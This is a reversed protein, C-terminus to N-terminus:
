TGVPAAVAAAQQQWLRAAEQRAAAEATAAGPLPEDRYREANQRRSQGAADYMEERWAPLPAERCQEALWANYDWQVAGSQRHTYRQPTGAAALSAYFADIHGEMEQQSPLKATGALVRAIWRSQLEFQPFPVIKWPLGVFSLTPAVTPPFVHQYLRALHGDEVSVLGTPLFPVCYEYGTCYMVTHLPGVVSGDALTARGDGHLQALNAAKVVAGSSGAGGVTTDAIDLPQGTLPNEWTRACLYVQEAGAGALEEAIDVGSSSAGLLLVRQGKFADPSRYNHSHMVLGLFSDQGPIAPLRPRAYHGTCVVVADYQESQQGSSGAGDCSGNSGSSSSGGAAETVVEWRPWGPQGGTASSADSSGDAPGGALPTVSQVRTNLRVHQLLDFRAAFAELYREAHGPFQRADASGPFSADFPFDSFAMVERPLNTRLNAYMSGHVHRSGLGLPHDEVEETYAWVGGVTAQAELVTPSHGARRLERAAVLGAAGGGVVAVRLAQQQGGAHLSQQGQETM